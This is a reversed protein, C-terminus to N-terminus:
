LDVFTTNFFLGIFPPPPSALSKYSPTASVLRGCFLVNFTIVTQGTSTFHLNFEIFFSRLQSLFPPSAVWDFEGPDAGTIHEIVQCEVLSCYDVDLVERAPSM